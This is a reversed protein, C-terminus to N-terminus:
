LFSVSKCEDIDVCVRGKMACRNCINEKHYILEYNTQFIKKCSYCCVDEDEDEDETDTKDSDQDSEGGEAMYTPTNLYTPM